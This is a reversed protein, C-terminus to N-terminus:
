LVTGKVDVSIVPARPSDTRITLKGNFPGKGLEPKLTLKVQYERGEREALQELTAEIGKLNSEVSTVKIPETAFNRINLAQRLPEQLEIRGFDAVPPTVAIVPRVFGSVPIQVLKQKPHNTHITVFDTLAGVPADNSLSMEVRWQKGKADDDTVREDEKAERYSVKLHPYPSEVKVVDMPAGDPVWLTQVITGEKPEGQVTIFRAYGPKVSIYPQLKARLTLEFHPNKPDNTFVTVGKSVAGNFTGTHFVVNVKGTKGPAITEDYRAVTCGCSSIVNTLKLTDDGENAIVFDHVIVEGKPVTGVDKIPEAIVAKPAKAADAAGAWSASLALLLGVCSALIVSQLHRKM